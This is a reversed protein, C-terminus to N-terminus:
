AKSKAARRARWGMLGLAGLLLPASAPLPVPAVKEISITLLSFAAPDTIFDIQAADGVFDGTVLELGAFAALSQGRTVVGGEDAGATIDQGAVFAPGNAPDNFETGADWIHLGSVQILRDGLYNGMADFIEYATASDNGIFTDNSPLIMSLFTLYRNNTGDLDIEASATEGPQVPPPGSPSGIVVARSNPDVALREPPLGSPDGLEAIREVGASAAEGENFADFTGDHFATYVPTVSLGGAAQNNTVTIKLTTAQAAGASLAMVAGVAAASWAKNLKM